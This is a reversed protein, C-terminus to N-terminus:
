NRGFKRRFEMFHDYFSNGDIAFNGRRYLDFEGYDPTGSPYFGRHLAAFHPIDGALLTLASGSSVSYTDGDHILLGPVGQLKHTGSPVSYFKFPECNKQVEFKKDASFGVTMVVNPLAKRELKKFPLVPVQKDKPVPLAQSKIEKWNQDLPGVRAGVREKLKIFAYDKNPERDEDSTGFEYDEIEYYRFEYPENPNKRFQQPVWVKVSFI